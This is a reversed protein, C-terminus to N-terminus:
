RTTVRTPPAPPSSSLTLTHAVYRGCGLILAPLHDARPRSPRLPGFDRLSPPFLFVGPPLGGADPPLGLPPKAREAENLEGILVRKTVIGAEGECSLLLIRKHLWSNILAQPPNVGDRRRCLPGPELRARAGVPVGRAHSPEGSQYGSQDITRVGVSRVPRNGSPALRGSDCSSMWGASARRRDLRHRQPKRGPPWGGRATGM